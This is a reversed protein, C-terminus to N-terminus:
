RMDEVCVGVCVGYTCPCQLYVCVKSNSKPLLHFDEILGRGLAGDEDQVVNGTERPAHCSAGRGPAAAVAPRGVGIGRLWTDTGSLVEGLRTWTKM